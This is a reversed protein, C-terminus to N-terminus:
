VTGATAVVVNETFAVGSVEVKRLTAKWHRWLAFM